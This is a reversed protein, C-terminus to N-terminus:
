LRGDWTKLILKILRSERNQFLPFLSIRDGHQRHTQSDGGILKQIGLDINIFVPIQIM